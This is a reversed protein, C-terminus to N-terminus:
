CKVEEVLLCLHDMWGDRVWSDIKFIRRKRLWDFDRCTSEFIKRQKRGLYKVNKNYTDDIKCALFKNPLWMQSSVNNANNIM